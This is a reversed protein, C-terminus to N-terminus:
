EKGWGVAQPLPVGRRVRHAIQLLICALPRGLQRIAEVVHVVAGGTQSPLGAKIVNVASM